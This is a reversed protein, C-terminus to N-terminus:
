SVPHLGGIELVELAGTLKLVRDVQPPGPVLIVRRKVRRARVSADVIVRVGCSDIFTLERLDLVVQRSRLKAGRLTRELLPSTALDLEGAVHVWVSGHGGDRCLCEFAGPVVEPRSAGSDLVALTYAM